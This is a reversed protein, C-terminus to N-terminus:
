EEGKIKTYFIAMDPKKINFEREIDKILECLEMANMYRIANMIDDVKM